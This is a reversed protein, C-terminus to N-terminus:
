DPCGNRVVCERSPPGPHRAKAGVATSSEQRMRHQHGSANGEDGPINLNVLLRVRAIRCQRHSDIAAVPGDPPDM